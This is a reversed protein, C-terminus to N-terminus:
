SAPLAVQTVMEPEDRAPSTPTQARRIPSLWAMLFTFFFGGGFIFLAMRVGFSQALIGGVIAGIPQLGAVLVRKSASVRGQMAAPTIIQQLSGASINILVDGMTGICAGLILLVLLTAFSGGALPILAWGGAVIFAAIAVTRGLGLRDIIRSALGAMIIGAVGAGSFGVGLLAPAIGLGHTLYLVIQSNLMPAFLNFLASLMLLARLIPHRFVFRLGLAIEHLMGQRAVHPASAQSSRILALSGAAFLFSGADIFLALPASFLEVLVGSLLTGILAALVRSGELRSNAGVLLDKGVLDPLFSQYAASFVSSLAGSIVAEGFLLPLTLWGLLAAVPIVAITLALGFNSWLLLARRPLRDALAGAFLGTLAGSGASCALLIGMDLPTAHLLNLATLPLALMTIASGTLSVTEGIWLRM